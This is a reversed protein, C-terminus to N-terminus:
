RSYSFVQALVGSSTGSDTVWGDPAAFILYGLNDVYASGTAPLDSKQIAVGGVGRPGAPRYQLPVAGQGPVLELDQGPTTCPAVCDAAITVQVDSGVSMYSISVPQNAAWIGGLQSM